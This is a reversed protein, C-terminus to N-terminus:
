NSFFRMEHSSVIFIQGRVVEDDDLTMHEGKSLWDLRVSPLLGECLEVRSRHVGSVQQTHTTTEEHQPTQQQTHQNHQNHQNHQTHQTHKIRTTIRQQISDWQQQQRPNRTTKTGLLRLLTSYLVLGEEVRNNAVHLLGLFELATTCRLVVLLVLLVV